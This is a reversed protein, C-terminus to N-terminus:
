DAKLRHIAASTADRYGFSVFGSSNQSAFLEENALIRLIVTRLKDLVKLLRDGCRIGVIRRVQVLSEATEEFDIGGLSGIQEVVHLQPLLEMRQHLTGLRVFGLDARLRQSGQFGSGAGEFGLNRGM